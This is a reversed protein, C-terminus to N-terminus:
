RSDGFFLNRMAENPKRSLFSRLDKALLPYEQRCSLEYTTLAARAYKDHTLDLVFYDCGDHKEGSDSQGDTRTIIFKEYLGRTKDGM